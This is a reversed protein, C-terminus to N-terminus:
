DQSKRRAFFILAIVVLAALSIWIVYNSRSNANALEIEPVDKLDVCACDVRDGPAIKPTPGNVPANIDTVEGAASDPRGNGNIDRWEKEWNGDKTWDFRGGEWDGDKNSDWWMQDWKGDRDFDSWYEEFFGDGDRDIMATEPKGDSDEDRFKTEKTGNGDLDEEWRTLAYANSLCLLLALFFMTKKM